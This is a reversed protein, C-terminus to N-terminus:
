IKRFYEFFLYSLYGSANAGPWSYTYVGPEKTKAAIKECMANFEDTTKPLNDATYGYKALVTPNVIIGTSWLEMGTPLVYVGGHFDERKGNYYVYDENLTFREAVTKTEEQKNLGIAPKNWVSEKMDVLVAGHGRMTRDSAELLTELNYADLYLDVDNREAGKGIELAPNNENAMSLKLEVTYGEEAYMKNFEAILTELWAHGYGVSNYAIVAKKGQVTTGDENYTVDYKKGGCGGLIGMVLVLVLTLSLIRKTLKM